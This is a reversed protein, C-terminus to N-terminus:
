GRAPPVHVHGPSAGRVRLRLDPRAQDATPDTRGRRGHREATAPWALPDTTHEPLRNTVFIRVKDGEVVEITPGPSQGNYGWLRAIMGPAFEREVPEAVLHFEKWGGKMRFPLSWGNLTVVPRYPPGAVPMLPPASAASTRVHPEPVAALAAKAVTSAGILASASALFNRRSTM